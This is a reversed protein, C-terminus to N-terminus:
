CDESQMPPTMCKIWERRAASDFDESVEPHSKCKRVLAVYIQLSQKFSIPRVMQGDLYYLNGGQYLIAKPRPFDFYAVRGDLRCKKNALNGHLPPTTAGPKAVIRSTSPLSVVVGGFQRADQTATNIQVIASGKWHLCTKFRTFTRIMNRALKGVSRFTIRLTGAYETKSVSLNNMATM